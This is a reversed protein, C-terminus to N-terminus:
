DERSECKSSDVIPHEYSLYQIPQDLYPNYIEEYRPQLHMDYCPQGPMGEAMLWQAQDFGQYQWELGQHASYDFQCPMLHANSAISPYMPYDCKTTFSDPLSSQRGRPHYKAHRFDRRDKKLHYVVDSGACGNVNAILRAPGPDGSIFRGTAKLPYEIWPGPVRVPLQEHNQFSKPYNCCWRPQAPAALAQRRVEKASVRRVPHSEELETLSYYSVCDDFGDGEYDPGRLGPLSAFSTPETRHTKNSESAIMRDTSLSM